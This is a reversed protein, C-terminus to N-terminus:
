DFGVVHDGHGHSLFIFDAEIEDVNIHKALPNPKIFPDFLIKKGNIEVTFCAQGYYTLKM